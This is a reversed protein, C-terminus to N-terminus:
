VRELMSYWLYGVYEHYARQLYLLRQASPKTFGEAVASIWAIWSMGAPYHQAAWIGAPAATPKMGQKRAVAVARRLDCASTVLIFPTGGIIKQLEVFNEYTNQSRGEIVIDKESVGMAKGFDAMLAAVPRDGARLIGGSVVMRAGPLERYLRIAEAMRDITESTLKSTVPLSPYDEGYGSLVVITQIGASPDAHQLPPYPRELNAVLLEALPTLLFVVYLGVGLVILRRGTRPIRLILRALLGAVILITMIGIPSLCIALLQKLLIM